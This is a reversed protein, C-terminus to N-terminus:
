QRILNLDVTDSTSGQDDLVSLEIDLRSDKPISSTNLQVNFRGNGDSVTSTKLTRGKIGIVGPILSRESTADIQVKTYPTTQGQINFVAPVSAGNSLNSVSLSPGSTNGASNSQGVTFAWEHTMLTGDQAIAQAQVVNRGQNLNMPPTMTATRNDNLVAPRYDRGNLTFTATGSRITEPFQARLEPRNQNVYTNPAPLLNSIQSSSDSAITINRSAQKITELNNKKLYGVLTGENVELGPTIRLRGEYRGPSVETMSVNNIAGLISFSAKSKPDGLMTVTLTDGTSLSGGASHILNNIVPRTATENDKPQDPSQSVTNSSMKDRSIAVTRSASRWKVDAGMAESVFRLPVMTRGGITDAPVDLYIQKGNVYAERQGLTLEVTQGDGTAKITRTAPSYIVDAGLNEFIGRLPVLVRGGQMVPPQDFNIRTGNLETTINPQAGALSVSFLVAGTSIALKKLGKKFNTNHRNSMNKEENLPIIYAMRVEIFSSSM